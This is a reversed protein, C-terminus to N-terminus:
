ELIYKNKFIKFPYHRCLPASHNLILSFSGTNYNLNYFKVM